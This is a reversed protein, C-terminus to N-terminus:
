EIAYTGPNSIVNNVIVGTTDGGLIPNRRGNNAYLNGIVAINSGPGILSGGNDHGLREAIICNSITVNQVRL